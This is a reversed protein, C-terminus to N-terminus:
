GQSGTRSTAVCDMMQLSRRWSPGNRKATPTGSPPVPVTSLDGEAPQLTGVSNGHCRRHLAVSEDPWRVFEWVNLICSPSKKGRPFHCIAARFRPLASRHCAAVKASGDRGSLRHCTWQRRLMRAQGGALSQRGFSKGISVDDRQRIVRHGCQLVDPVIHGDAKRKDWRWEGSELHQSSRNIGGTSGRDSHHVLSGTPRRQALAMDLASLALHRDVNESMAWGVVRRSFLDLIVALYLWGEKTWLFTIDTVWAEDPAAATFDRQLVNPAIPFAHRSDTTVRFRRKRRAVLKRERMLRAVRKRAVRQGQAQLEAHVRPSGYRRKSAEHAAAVHVGLEVDRRARPSTPRGQSAYYGSTSVEMVRCLIAVPFAVKEQSVFAFKM